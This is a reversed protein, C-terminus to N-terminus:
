GLLRRLVAVFGAPDGAPQGYEGGSFGNHSGPFVVPEVGLEAALARTGRAPWEQNSGAGVGLVLRDGLARLVDLDADYLQCTPSNRFIANTRDGDDDVPLGFMAPDPAPADLYSPPVKGDHKVIAIFEAMGPGFGDRHYTEVMHETVAALVDRDPLFTSSPPEHAIATAVDDPHAALLAFLNVAGGSTGFCDVPGVGLAEIVRHLDAAHLEPPTPTTGTPNRATGRPDYTVVPRDVALLPVISGFGVADMPSGFVFLPRTSSALDGHVDYTILDDGEGVTRGLSQQLTTTM